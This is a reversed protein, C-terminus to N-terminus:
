VLTTQTLRAALEEVTLAPLEGPWLNLSADVVPPPMVDSQRLVDPRAMVERTPGDVLVKGSSMVMVRDAYQCAIEVDHTIVVITRGERQLEKLRSMLRGTEDEDLNNTPEDLIVVHPDMALTAAIALKRAEAPTLRLPVADAPLDFRELERAVARSVAAEDWGLQRPGFALEDKVSMTVMQNVPEQFVYGIYGRHDRRNFPKGEVLIEGGSPKSAGALLLSVTTKGSGNSGLIALFEGRHLSLDLGKIATPGNPYTFTLGSAKVIVEREGPVLAASAASRGNALHRLRLLAEQAQVALDVGLARGLRWMQPVRLSAREISAADLAESDAVVRGEELSVFHNGMEALLPVFPDCMVITIQETLLSRLAAIVERKGVPDLQVTVDDLALLLPHAVIASALAVRQMEGGSLGLTLRPLFSEDLGVTKLADIMAPRRDKAELTSLRLSLALEDDVRLGVLGQVASSLVVRSMRGLKGLPARRTNHGFVEVDGKMRGVSHPILGACLLLTTTKGAGIRGLLVTSRSREVALNLDTVAHKDAADHGLDYRVSVGSMKVAAPGPAVDLAERQATIGGRNDIALSQGDVHELIRFILPLMLSRFAPVKDRISGEWNVGRVAMAKMSIQIEYTLIDVYRFVVTLYMEASPPIRLGRFADLLEHLPTVAIFAVASLIMASIRLGLRLGDLLSAGSVDFVLFSFLVNEKAFLANGIFTLAFASWCATLAARPYKGGAILVVVAVVFATLVAPWRSSLTFLISLVVFVILRPTPGLWGMGRKTNTPM